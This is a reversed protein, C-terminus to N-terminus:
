GLVEWVQAAVRDVGHHARIHAAAREGIAAAVQPMSAALTMHARLSDREAAGPAIRICADEPFRSCELSETMMVPKGLGMLRIAIGSTEGAAPYRLNICADVASATLWFEREELHPRRLIGAGTLMPAVARELDTSVFEGAVLLTTRPHERHVEAFAELVAVLRKSERLYGFVGFLFSGQEVGWRQRWRISEAGGAADGPAVFLHPIEVIRTNPAHEGVVRAAAPQRWRISEAGGAVDGPSAFLHPIEVVRANPAHEAVVRAAAPNHVVVARSREVIRRLMPYDFYRRDAGSSARGRWLERAVGRSWEGYNYVFEDVYASEDLRGLLFHHLVADHLVVVGPHELARQYIEGHLGNNGLHYLAVDCAAPAVEVRGHKRLETLLAAAYDAVGTRAPPLPAYFGLTV